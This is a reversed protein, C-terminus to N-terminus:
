DKMIQWEYVLATQDDKHGFDVQLRLGDMDEVVARITAQGIRGGSLKVVVHQGIKYEPDSM